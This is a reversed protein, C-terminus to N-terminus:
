GQRAGDRAVRAMRAGLRIAEVLSGESARGTGAIDYATGHGVSTRVVPLGLTVNVVRDLGALKVPIMGQDHYLALVADYRGASAKLFASDAPEPGALEVGVERAAALAPRLVREEEDGFRGGDGAHPNLACLALRPGALGFFRRLGADLVRAVRVIAEASLAEAVDRLAVHTTVLAVRLPGAVLLMVAQEAGTLHALLETHGPFPSGAAAIAEKSIPGTVIGDVRGDLALRVAEHIYDLSAQGGLPDPRRPELRDPPFNDLDLLSIPATAGPLDLAPPLDCPRGLAAAAHELVAGCGVIVLSAGGGSPDPQQLVKLILEPGVGRPDGMTVALTVPRGTRTM